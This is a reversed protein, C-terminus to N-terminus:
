RPLFNSKLRALTPSPLSTPALATIELLEIVRAPVRVLRLEMGAGTAAKRIQM